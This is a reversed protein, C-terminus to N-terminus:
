LVGEEQLPCFAVILKPMDTRRDAQFLQDVVPCIKMFNSMQTNKSFRDFFICTKNLDSLLLPYKAHLGSYTLSGTESV